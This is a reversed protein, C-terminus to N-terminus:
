GHSKKHALGRTKIAKLEFVFQNIENLSFNGSFKYETGKNLDHIIILPFQSKDLGNFLALDSHLKNNEM